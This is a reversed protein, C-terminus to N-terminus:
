KLSLVCQTIGGEGKAHRLFHKRGKSNVCCVVQFVLHWIKFAFVCWIRRQSPDADRVGNPLECCDGLHGLKIYPPRSRFPIPLLLFLPFLPNSQKETIRFLGSSYPIIIVGWLLCSTSWILSLEFFDFFQSWVSQRHVGIWSYFFCNSAVLTRAVFTNIACASKDALSLLLFVSFHHM